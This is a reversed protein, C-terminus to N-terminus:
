CRNAIVILMHTIAILVYRVYLQALTGDWAQAWLGCSTCPYSTENDREYEAYVLCLNGSDEADKNDDDQCLETTEM